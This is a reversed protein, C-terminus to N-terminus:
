HGHESYTPQTQVNLIDLRIRDAKQVRRDNVKIVDLGMNFDSGYVFGNYYYASWLGGGGGGSYPGREFFGIETPHSSDSFDWVSLGGQYWAQVMIDRGKVPILSGNHAVCNESDAQYRPIKYYSKFVLQGRRTIDFIANAGHNPGVAENCTPAGGGGLEDTFVVKTADQNFTASHWFAFNPDTVRATVRPREPDRIDFLVGDGMCAGAAINKEPYVTIDHCGSTPILLGPQTENGGDPFVVPTAVVSAATPNRLPVKVISIKDHPPQCDPFNAAPSYSSVYLYVNRKHKDPLLTHTHSGCATEVSKIYRPNRVDQIDFIRIGEWSEKVSASQATSACSDDNRSSDVSAFLLNGYVSLDMQAGPCVVSSVVQPNRPNRIDYISFGGYNGVFAYHGQFAIDTNITAAIPAPKPVNAVQAVNPSTVVTDPPPIDAAQSPVATLALTLAAVSATALLRGLRGTRHPTFM